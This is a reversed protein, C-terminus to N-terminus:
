NQTAINMAAEVYAAVTLLGEAETTETWCARERAGDPLQARAETLAQRALDEELAARDAPVERETVEYMARREIRIPLFLGGVPLVDTEVDERAYDAAETLAWRGGFLPLTSAYRVRGTRQRLTETLPAASEASFWVRGIVEGLARVPRTEQAGAREEGSILTQGAKVTDGPQVCAKGALPEVSLVIADRAAFLSGAEEARYVPPAPDEAKYEVTLRAGRLRVGAYALSDFESLLRASILATDLSARSAGPTVGMDRLSAALAMGLAPPQEGDLPVVDVIWVRGAFLAVLLACLALGPLLTARRRAKKAAARWGERSEVTLALGLEEALASVAAADPSSATLRLERPGLREIELFRVGQSLAREVFREPFRGKVRLRVRDTM